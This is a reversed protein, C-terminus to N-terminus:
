NFKRSLIRLSEEIRLSNPYIYHTWIWSYSFYVAIFVILTVFGFEALTPLSGKIIYIAPISIIL